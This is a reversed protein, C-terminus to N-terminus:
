AARRTPMPPCVGSEPVQGLRYHWFTWSRPRFSGAEATTLARMLNGVGITREMSTIDELTGIDMVRRLLRYPFRWSDDLTMDWSYIRVLREFEGRQAESVLLIGSNDSLSHSM